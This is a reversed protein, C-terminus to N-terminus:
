VLGYTGWPATNAWRAVLARWGDIYDARKVNPDPHAPTGFRWEYSEDEWKECLELCHRQFATWLNIEPKTPQGLIM